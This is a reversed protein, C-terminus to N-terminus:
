FFLSPFGPPIPITTGNRSMWDDSPDDNPTGLIGVLQESGLWIEGPITYDASVYCVGLYFSMTM